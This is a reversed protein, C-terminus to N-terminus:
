ANVANENDTDLKRWAPLQPLLRSKLYWVCAVTIAAGALALGAAGSAGLMEVMTADPDEVLHYLLVSTGNNVFHMLMGPLLSGTRYYVWGLALGTVFAFPIQIPNGHGIGFLLAPVVIAWVPNKWRGLLYGQMAGRFLLEEMLPAMIVIAIVGLPNNMMRDFAAEMTNPLGALENLYNTWMGMGVILVISTLLVKGTHPFNFKLDSGKVYKALLVHAAVAISFILQAWLIVTMYTPDNQDPIEFTGSFIMYGGAMVGFVAIQYLFFYIFLKIIRKM